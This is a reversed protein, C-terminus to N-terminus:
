PLDRAQKMLSSDHAASSTGMKLDMVCPERMGHTLDELCITCKGHAGHRSRGFRGGGRRPQSADGGGEDAAPAGSARPPTQAAAPPPESARETEDARGSRRSSEETAKDIRGYYTPLFVAPWKSKPALEEYFLAEAMISDKVITGVAGSRVAGAHGGAQAPGDQEGEASTQGAAPKPARQVSTMKAGMTDIASAFDNQGLGVVWRNAKHDGYRKTGLNGPTRQTQGDLSRHRRDSVAKAVSAFSGAGGGSLGDDRGSDAARESAAAVSRLASRTQRTEPLCALWEQITAATDARFHLHGDRTDIELETADAAAVRVARVKRWPVVKETTGSTYHLEPEEQENHVLTVTVQKYRWLSRKYLLSSHVTTM